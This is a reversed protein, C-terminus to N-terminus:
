RAAATVGTIAADVAAAALARVTADPADRLPGHIALEAFGHM